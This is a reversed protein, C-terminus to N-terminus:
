AARPLLDVALRRRRADIEQEAAEGAPPTPEEPEDPPPVDEPARAEPLEPARAYASLDWSRSRNSALGGESLVQDILGLDAAEGATLWTEAAMMALWDAEAGADGAKAAYSQAITGDIKELLAATARLDDANGLALTWAKHIMMFSGPAAVVSSGAIAVYSAASAALGDIHVTVGDAYERIAQAMARGGFVDGGPSDIRLSVPGSMGALTRALGEASVGGWWEADSESGAIVDYLYITNGDARIQANKRGNARYLNLLRNRM